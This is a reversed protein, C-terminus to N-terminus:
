QELMTLNRHINQTKGFGVANKERSAVIRKEKELKMQKNM